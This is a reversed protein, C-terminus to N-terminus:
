LQIDIKEVSKNGNLYENYDLVVSSFIMKSAKEIQNSYNKTFKINIQTSFGDNVKLLGSLIEHSQSYYKIGNKDELYISKTSEGTDMLINKGTKNEIQIIYEEYNMFIKKQLININLNNINENKEIKENGIFNNINLRNEGDEEIITIYDQFSQNQNKGTGLIDEVYNVKYTNQTWNEIKAIKKSGNLFIPQYYNAEFIKIDQYLEEKCEKSILNYAKEIEGNNCALVFNDIINTADEIEENDIIEGTVASENSVIEVNDKSEQTINQFTNQETQKVKEENNKSIITNILYLVIFFLAIIAGIKWIKVKNQHYFRRLKHM